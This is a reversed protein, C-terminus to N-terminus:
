YKKEKRKKRRLNIKRQHRVSSQMTIKRRVTLASMKERDHNAEPNTNRVKGKTRRDGEIKLLRPRQRHHGWVTGDSRRM